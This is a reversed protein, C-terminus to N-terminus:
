IMFPLFLFKYKKDIARRNSVIENLFCYIICELRREHNVSIYVSVKLDSVKAPLFNRPDVWGHFKRMERSFVKALSSNKFSKRFFVKATSGILFLGCSLNQILRMNKKKKLADSVKDPFIENPFIKTPSFKEDHFIKTVQLYNRWKVGVFIKRPM